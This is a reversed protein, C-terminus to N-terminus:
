FEDNFRDKFLRIEEETLENVHEVGNIEGKIDIEKKKPHIYEALSKAASLSEGISVIHYKCYKEAHAMIELWDEKSIDGGTFSDIELLLEYLGSYRTPNQGNMVCELFVLPDSAEGDKILQRMEDISLLDDSMIFRNANISIRDIYVSENIM